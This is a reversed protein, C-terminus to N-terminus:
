RTRGAALGGAVPSRQCTSLEEGGKAGIGLVFLWAADEANLLKERQLQPSIAKSTWAVVGTQSPSGRDEEHM